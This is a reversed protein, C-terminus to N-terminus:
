IKHASESCLTQDVEISSVTQGADIIRPLREFEGSQSSNVSVISRFPPFNGGPIMVAFGKKRFDANWVPSAVCKV